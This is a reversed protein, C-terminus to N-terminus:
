VPVGCYSVIYPVTVRHWRTDPEQLRIPAAEEAMETVACNGYTWGVRGGDPPIFAARVARALKLAELRGAGYCDVDYRERYLPMETEGPGGVPGKVVVAYTAANEKFGWAKVEDGIRTSTLATVANSARLKGLLAGFVDPLTTVAM